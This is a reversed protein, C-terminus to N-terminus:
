VVQGQLIGDNVLFCLKGRKNISGLAHRSLGAGCGRQLLTSCPADLWCPQSGVLWYAMLISFSGQVFAVDSLSPCLFSFLPTISHSLSLLCNISKLLFPALPFFHSHFFPSLSLSLNLAAAIRRFQTRDSGPTGHLQESDISSGSARSLASAVQQNALKSDISSGSARGLM